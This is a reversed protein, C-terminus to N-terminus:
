LSGGKLSRMYAHLLRRVDGALTEARELAEPSGFKLRRAIHIQTELECLSGRAHGLFQRFEGTTSKGYGEAVNSPISVAARQMQSSLGFRETTPFTATLHYVVVVLEIPVQWVRLEKYGKTTRQDRTSEGETRAPATGSSLAQMDSVPIRSDRPDYTSSENM